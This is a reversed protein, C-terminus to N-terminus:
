ESTGSVCVTVMGYPPVDIKGSIESGLKETLDTEFVKLDPGDAFALTAKEPRGSAGYLRVIWGKGDRSPKLASVLVGSPEVRLFSPEEPVTPDVPVVVLPQSSETGFRNAAASDFRGHPQIAYRFITEDEQDAKYNTFWYNNMVYSFLTQTPGLLRIWATEATIGGVEVLPADV